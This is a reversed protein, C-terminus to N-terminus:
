YYNQDFARSLEIVSQVNMKRMINHKITSITSPKRGLSEAILSTKMGKCLLPVIQAERRTLQRASGPREVPRQLSIILTQLLDSALYRRGRLVESLCSPLDESLANKLLYGKVGLELYETRFIKGGHDDFIVLPVEPFQKRMQGITDMQGKYYNNSGMIIVDFVKTSHLVAFSDADDAEAFSADFQKRVIMEIGLRVIINKDILGINLIM